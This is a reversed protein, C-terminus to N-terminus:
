RIERLKQVIEDRATDVFLDAATETIEPYYTVIVIGLLIGFLIKIVTGDLNVGHPAPRIVNVKKRKLVWCIRWRYKVSGPFVAVRNNYNIM